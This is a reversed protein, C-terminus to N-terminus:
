ATGRQALNINNCAECVSEPIVGRQQLFGFVTCGLCFGLGAELSAAVAIASVLATAAGPSQVIYEALLAAASLTAGIGQGAFDRTARLAYFDRGVAGHESAAFVGDQEIGRSRLAYQVARVLDGNGDEAGMRPDTVRLTVFAPRAKVEPM